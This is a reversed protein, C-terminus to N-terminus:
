VQPHSTSKPQTHRHARTHTHTHPSCVPEGNRITLNLGIVLHMRVPALIIGINLFGPWTEIRPDIRDINHYESTCGFGICFILTSVRGCVEKGSGIILRDRKLRNWFDTTGGKQVGVLFVDVTSSSHAEDGILQGFFPLRRILDPSNCKSESWTEFRLTHSRGMWDSRLLRRYLVRLVGADIRCLM